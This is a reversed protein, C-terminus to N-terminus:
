RQAPETPRRRRWMRIQHLKITKWQAELEHTLEGQEVARRTRALGLGTARKIQKERMWDDCAAVVKPVDCLLDIPQARTRISIGM